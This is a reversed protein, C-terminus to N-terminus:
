YFIYFLFIKVKNYLTESTVGIFKNIFDTKILL